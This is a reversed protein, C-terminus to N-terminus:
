VLLLEVRAHDKSVQSQHLALFIEHVRVLKSDLHPRRMTLRHYLLNPNM